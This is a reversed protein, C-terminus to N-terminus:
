RLATLRALFDDLIADEPSMPGDVWEFAEGRVRWHGPCARVLWSEYHYSVETILPMGDRRLVDVAVSPMRLTQAVRLALQLADVDIKAPDFDNRGGGSARFDDPRNGRRFAFLRDGIVTVRTDFENDAVLEQVLMSGRHVFPSKLPPAGLGLRLVNRLPRTAKRLWEFRRPRLSEIGRGFLRQAMREAEARTRLLAVNESRYGSALKIVLPYDASRLFELATEYRWFVRTAPMPISAAQLLYAQAIKDDFHWCSRLDPLVLLDTAHDLASLLRTGLERPFEIPPFWWLFGDCERVREFFDGDAVSVIRVDHGANTLREVWRDSFAAPDRPMRVDAQVAIRFM